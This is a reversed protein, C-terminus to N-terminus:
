HRTRTSSRAMWRLRKLSTRLMQHIQIKVDFQNEMLHTKNHDLIRMMTWKMSVTRWLSALGGLVEEMPRRPAPRLFPDDDGTSIIGLDNVDEMERHFVYHLLPQPNVKANKLRRRMRSRRQLKWLKGFAV